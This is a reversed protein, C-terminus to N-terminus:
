FVFLTMSSLQPLIWM